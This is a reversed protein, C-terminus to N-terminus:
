YIDIFYFLVLYKNISLCNNNLSFHTVYFLEVDHDKFYDDKKMSQVASYCTLLLVNVEMDSYVVFFDVVYNISQVSSLIICYHRSTNTKQKM